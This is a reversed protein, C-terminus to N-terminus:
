GVHLLATALKIDTSLVDCAKIQLDIKGLKELIHTGTNKLMDRCESPLPELEVNRMSKPEGWSLQIGKIM